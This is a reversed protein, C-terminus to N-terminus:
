ANFTMHNHNPDVGSGAISTLNQITVTYEQKAELAVDLFIIFDYVEDVRAGTITAVPDMRYNAVDTASAKTPATSLLLKLGGEVVEVRQLAIAPAAPGGCCTPLAGNGVGAQMAKLRCDVAPFDIPDNPDGKAAPGTILKFISKLEMYGQNVHDIWPDGWWINRSIMGFAQFDAAGTGVLGNMGRPEANSFRAVGHAIAMALGDYGLGEMRALGGTVVIVKQGYRELAHVNPLMQYWDLYYIYEPYFGKFLKFLNDVMSKPIPNSLPIQHSNENSIISISQEETFLSAGDHPRHENNGYVTFTGTQHQFRHPGDEPHAGFLLTANTRSEGHVADYEPTGLAPRADHDEAKVHDPLQSFTLQLFYDGAVVGSALLLHGDVSKDASSKTGIHHVGGRYHGIAVTRVPVPNGDKDVLQDGVRLKEATTLKGSKLLFVQDPTCVMDGVKEEDGFSLYVMSVMDENAAGDSFTVASPQWIIAGDKGITGALIQEGRSINQIMRYGDPLGILTGYAVCSCCCYCKGLKWSKDEQHLEDCKDLIDDPPFYTYAIINGNADKKVCAPTQVPTYIQGHEICWNHMQADQNVLDDCHYPAGPLQDCVPLLHSEKLKQACTNPDYDM